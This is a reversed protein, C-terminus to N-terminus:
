RLMMGRPKVGFYGKDRYVVEGPLSPDVRSDHVNAPTTELDRILDYDVDTKSHLKYGYSSKGGKNAWSGDRSRKTRAEGGGRSILPLM